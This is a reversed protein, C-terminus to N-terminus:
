MTGKKRLILLTEMHMVLHNGAMGIARLNLKLVISRQKFHVVLIWHLRNEVDFWFGTKSRSKGM